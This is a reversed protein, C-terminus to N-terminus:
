GYTCNLNYKVEVQKYLEEFHPNVTLDYNPYLVIMKNKDSDKLQNEQDEQTRILSPVTTQLVTKYRGIGGFGIFFFNKFGITNLTKMVMSGGVDHDINVKHLNAYEYRQYDVVNIPWQTIKSYDSGTQWLCLLKPITKKYFCYPVRENDCKYYKSENPPKIYGKCRWILSPVIIPKDDTYYYQSHLLFVEDQMMIFDYEDCYVWKDNIPIIYFDDKISPFRRKIMSRTIREDLTPGSGILVVDKNVDLSILFKERLPQESQILKENNQRLELLEHISYNSANFFNM